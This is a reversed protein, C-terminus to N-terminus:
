PQQLRSLIWRYSVREQELRVPAGWCTGTLDDLLSREDMTLRGLQPKRENTAPTVWSRRHALFTERDMLFSATQPFTARMRDLNAFGRVDIDGWYHLPRERLWAVEALRDDDYPLGFIVAGDTIAPFALGNIQSETVFIRQAAIPLRALEATSVTLDTLGGVSQRPDLLRIRVPTPVSLLGYRREFDRVNTATPDIAGAPLVENLLDALLVRQEQIFGPDVGPLDIQRLFLGPRPHAEFWAVVTILREWQPASKLARLPNKTLWGRLQPLVKLTQRALTDFRDAEQSKGILALADDASPVVIANPLRLRGLQRSEVEIWRIDYGRERSARSDRELTRIWRQLEEVRDGIASPHPRRLPLTVPFLEEGTVRSALLEGRTWRRHLVALIEGPTTWSVFGRVGENRLIM